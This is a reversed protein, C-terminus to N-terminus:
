KKSRKVLPAGYVEPTGTVACITVASHRWGKPQRSFVVQFWQQAMPGRFVHFKAVATKKDMLHRVFLLKAHAREDSNLYFASDLVAKETLAGSIAPATDVKPMWTHHHYLLRIKRLDEKARPSEDIILSYVHEVNPYVLSEKGIIYREIVEFDTERLPTAVIPCVYDRSEVTAPVASSDGTDCAFLEQSTLTVLVLAAITRLLPV